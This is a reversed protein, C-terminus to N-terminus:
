LGARVVYFRKVTDMSLGSETFSTTDQGSAASYDDDLEDWLDLIDELNDNALISYSQGEQSNWTITVSYTDPNGPVIQTSISSIELDETSGGTQDVFLKVNDIALSM